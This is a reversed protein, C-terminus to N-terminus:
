ATIPSEDLTQDKEGTGEIEETREKPNDSPADKRQTDTDKKFKAVFKEKIAIFKTHGAENWWKQIRPKAWKAFLLCGAVAITLGATKGDTELSEDEANEFIPDDSNNGYENNIETQYEQKQIRQEARRTAIEDDIQQKREPSVTGLEELIKDDWRTTLYGAHMSNSVDWHRQDAYEQGKETVTWNGPEGKLYGADRLLINMEQSNLGLERGLGSTSKSMTDVKRESYTDWKYPAPSM